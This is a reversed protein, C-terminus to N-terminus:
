AAILVNIKNFNSVFCRVEPAVYFTYFHAAYACNKLYFLRRAGESRLVAINM